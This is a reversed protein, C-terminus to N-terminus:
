AIVQKNNPNLAAIFTYISPIILKGKKIAFPENNKKNKTM